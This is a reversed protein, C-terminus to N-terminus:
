VQQLYAVRQKRRTALIVNVAKTRKGRKEKRQRIGGAICNRARRHKEKIIREQLKGAIAKITGDTCERCFSSSRLQTAANKVLRCKKKGAFNGSSSVYPHLPIM